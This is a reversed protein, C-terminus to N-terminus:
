FSRYLYQSGDWYSQSIVKGSPLDNPHNIVSIIGNNEIHTDILKFNFWPISSLTERKLEKYDKGLDQSDNLHIIGSENSIGLDKASCLMGHSKVGRLEGVEIKTKSPLTSGVQALITIMGVQVNSAGCVVQFQEAGTDVICVKLKMADPHKNVEIIKATLIM